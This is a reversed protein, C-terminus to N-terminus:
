NMFTMVSDVVAGDRVLAYGASGILNFWHERPSSYHRLEDGPQIKAVLSRWETLWQECPNEFRAEVEEVSTKQGLWERPPWAQPGSASTVSETHSLPKPRPDHGLMRQVLDLLKIALWLPMAIVDWILQELFTIM